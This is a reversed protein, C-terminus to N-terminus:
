NLISKRGKSKAQFYKPLAHHPLLLGYHILDVFIQKWNPGWTHVSLIHRKIKILIKIHLSFASFKQFIDM